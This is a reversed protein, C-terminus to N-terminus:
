LAYAFHSIRMSTHPNIGPPPEFSTVLDASTGSSDDAHLWSRIVVVKAKSTGFNGVPAAKRLRPYQVELRESEPPDHTAVHIVTSLDPVKEDVM